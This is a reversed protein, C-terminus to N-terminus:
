EWTIPVLVKFYVNDMDEIVLNDISEDERIINGKVLFLLFKRPYIDYYEWNKHKKLPKSRDYPAIVKHKESLLLQRRLKSYFTSNDLPRVYLSTFQFAQSFLYVEKSSLFSKYSVSPSISLSDLYNKSVLVTHTKTSRGQFEEFKILIPDTIILTDVFCINGNISYPNGGKSQGKLNKLPLISLTFVVSFFSLYNM